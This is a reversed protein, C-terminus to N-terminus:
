GLPTVRAGGPTISKRFQFTLVASIARREVLRERKHIDALRVWVTKAGRVNLTKKHASTLFCLQRIQM